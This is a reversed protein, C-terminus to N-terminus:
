TTRRELYRVCPGDWQFDLWGTWGNKQKLIGIQGETDEEGTGKKPRHVALVIDAHHELDRCGRAQGLQPQPKSGGPQPDTIQSLLMAVARKQKAWEKVAVGAASLGAREDDGTLRILGAYDIVMLDLPKQAHLRSAWALISGVDSRGQDEVVAAYDEMRELYHEAVEALDDRAEKGLYAGLLPALPLEWLQSLARLLILESADELSRLAVRRGLKANFWMIQQALTSKGESTRGEVLVLQGPHLMLRSDLSPFGTLLGEPRDQRTRMGSLIQGVVLSLDSRLPGNCRLETGTLYAIASSIAGRADSKERHALTRLRIGAAAIRRRALREDLLDALQEVNALNAVATEVLARTFSWAQERGDRELIDVVTTETIAQGTDYLTALAKWTAINGSATFHEETLTPRVVAMSAPEWIVTGLLMREAVEAALNVLEWRGHLRGRLLLSRVTWYPARNTSGRLGHM